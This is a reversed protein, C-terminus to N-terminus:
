GVTIMGTLRGGEDVVPASALNYQQFLYAVEEQDMEPKVAASLDVGLETLPTSRSARILVSLPVAGKLRFAPDVLYVEFFPDPLDETSRMHDIAQGVTWFEPAAVFDRQMLRGATEEDFNLSREIAARDAANIQEFVRVQRDDELDAALLAADDSDLDELVDAVIQDSLEDLVGARLDESLEAIMDAPLQDRLLKIAKKFVHPPMQEFVDAMDAPHLDEMAVILGDRAGVEVLEVFQDVAEGDVGTTESPRDDIEKPAHKSTQTM